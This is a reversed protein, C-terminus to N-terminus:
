ENSDAEVKADFELKEGRNVRGIGVANLALHQDSKFLILQPHHDLKMATKKLKPLRYLCVRKLNRCGRLDLETLDNMGYLRLYELRNLGSLDLRTAEGDRLNLNKLRSLTKLESLDPEHDSGTAITLTLTELRKEQLILPLYDPEIAANYIILSTPDSTKLFKLFSGSVSTGAHIRVTKLRRKGVLISLQEDTLKRDSGRFSEINVAQDFLKYSDPSLPKPHLLQLRKVDTIKVLKLTERVYADDMRCRGLTVPRNQAEPVVPRGSEPVPQEDAVVLGSVALGALLVGALGARFRATTTLLM